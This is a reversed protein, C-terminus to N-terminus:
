SSKTVLIFHDTHSTYQQLAKLGCFDIMAKLLDQSFVHHHMCRNNINDNCRGVFNEYSKAQPDRKLDHMKLVETLHTMDDEGTKNNYDNIIHEITTFPRQHDFNAEKKPLIMVVGRLSAMDSRKKAPQGRHERNIGCTRHRQLRRGMQAVVANAGEDLQFSGLMRQRNLLGVPNCEVADRLDNM